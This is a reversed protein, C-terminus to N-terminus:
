WAADRDDSVPDPVVLELFTGISDVFLKFGWSASDANTERIWTNVLVDFFDFPAPASHLAQRYGPRRRDLLDLCRPSFRVLEEDIGALMPIAGAHRAGLTEFAFRCLVIFELVFKVRSLEELCVENSRLVASEVLTRGLTRGYRLLHGSAIGGRHRHCGPQVSRNNM